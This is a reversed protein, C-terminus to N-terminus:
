DGQEEEERRGGRGEEREKSRRRGEGGRGEERERSRRRGEGGEEKRVREELARIEICCSFSKTRM